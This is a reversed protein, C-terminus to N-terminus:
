SILSWNFHTSFTFKNGRFVKLQTALLVVTHTFSHCSTCVWATWSSTQCVSCPVSRLAANLCFFLFSFVLFLGQRPLQWQGNWLEARTRRWILTTVLSPTSSSRWTAWCNSSRWCGGRLAKSRRSWLKRIAHCPCKMLIHSVCIKKLDHQKLMSATSQSVAEYKPFITNEKVFFFILLSKTQKWLLWKIHILVLANISVSNNSVRIWLLIQISAQPSKWRKNRQKTRKGWEVHLISWPFLNGKYVRVYNEDHGFLINADIKILNSLPFM